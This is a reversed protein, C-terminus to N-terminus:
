RKYSRRWLGTGVPLAPIFAHGLILASAFGVKGRKKKSFLVQHKNKTFTSFWNRKLYDKSSRSLKIICLFKYTSLVLHATLAKLVFAILLCYKM